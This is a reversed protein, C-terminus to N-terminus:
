CVANLFYSLVQIIFIVVISCHVTTFLVVIIIIIVQYATPDCSSMILPQHHPPAPPLDATLPGGIRPYYPGATSWAPPDVTDQYSEPYVVDRYSLRDAASLEEACVYNGGGRCQEAMSPFREFDGGSRAPLVAAWIAATAVPSTVHCSGVEPQQSSTVSFLLPPPPQHSDVTSADNRDKESDYVSCSVVEDSRPCSSAHGSDDTSDM